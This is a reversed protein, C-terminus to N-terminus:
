HFDLFVSLIFLIRVNIQGYKGINNKFKKYKKM